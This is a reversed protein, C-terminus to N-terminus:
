TRKRPCSINKKQPVSHILQKCFFKETCLFSLIRLLVFNTENPEFVNCFISKIM